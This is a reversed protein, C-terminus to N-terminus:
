CCEQGKWFGCILEIFGSYKSLAANVAVSDDVTQKTVKGLNIDGTIFVDYLCATDNGCTELAETKLEESTWAWNDIDDTFVPVFSNNNYTSWDTGAETYYMISDEESVAVKLFFFSVM